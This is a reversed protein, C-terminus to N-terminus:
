QFKNYSESMQPDGGFSLATVAILGKDAVIIKCQNPCSLSIIFMHGGDGGLGERINSEDLVLRFV